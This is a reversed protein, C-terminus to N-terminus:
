LICLVRQWYSVEVFFYISQFPSVSAHCYVFVIQESERGEEMHIVFFFCTCALGTGQKKQQVCACKM